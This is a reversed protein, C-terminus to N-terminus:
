VYKGAQEQGPQLASKSSVKIKYFEVYYFSVRRETLVFGKLEIVPVKQMPNLRTFEASKQEGASVFEVKVRCM